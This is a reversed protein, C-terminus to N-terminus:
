THVIRRPESPLHFCIKNNYKVDIVLWRALRDIIILKKKQINMM